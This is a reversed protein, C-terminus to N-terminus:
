SGSGSRNKARPQRLRGGAVPQEVQGLTRHQALLVAGVQRGVVPRPEEAVRSFVQPRAPERALEILFRRDDAAVWGAGFVTLYRTKGYIHPIGWEDRVVDVLTGDRDLM